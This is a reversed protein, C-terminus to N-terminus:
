QAVGKERQMKELLAERIVDSRSIMRTAKVEDIWKLIAGTIKVPQIVQKKSNEM